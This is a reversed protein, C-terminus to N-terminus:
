HRRPVAVRKAVGGLSKRPTQRERSEARHDRAAAAEQAFFADTDAVDDALASGPVVPLIVKGVSSLFHVKPAARFNSLVPGAPVNAIPIWEPKWVVLVENRSGDWKSHREALIAEVEWLDCGSANTTPSSSISPNTCMSSAAAMFSNSIIWHLGIMITWARTDRLPFIDRDAVWRNAGGHGSM